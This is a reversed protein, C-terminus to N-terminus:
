SNLAPRDRPGFKAAWQDETMPQAGVVYRRTEVSVPQEPKGLGRDMIAVAAAIQIREDESKLCKGLVEIAEVSKVRAYRNVTAISDLEQKETPAKM